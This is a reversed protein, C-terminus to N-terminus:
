KAKRKATSGGHYRKFSEVAQKLAPHIKERKPIVKENRPFAQKQMAM